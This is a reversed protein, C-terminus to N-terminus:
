NAGSRLAEEFSALTNEPFRRPSGRHGFILFDDM